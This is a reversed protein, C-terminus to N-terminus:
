EMREVFMSTCVLGSAPWYKWIGNAKYSHAIFRSSYIHFGCFCLHLWIENQVIKPGHGVKSPGTTGPLQKYLIPSIKVDVLIFFYIFLVFFVVAFSSYLFIHCEPFTGSWSIPVRKPVSLLKLFELNKLVFELIAFFSRLVGNQM